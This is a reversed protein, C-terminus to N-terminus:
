THTAPNGTCHLQVSLVIIRLLVFNPGVTVPNIVHRARAPHPKLEFSLPLSGDVTGSPDLLRAGVM